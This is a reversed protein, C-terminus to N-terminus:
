QLRLDQARERQWAAVDESTLERFHWLAWNFCAILDVAAEVGVGVRVLRQVGIRSVEEQATFYESVSHHHNLKTALGDFSLAYRPIGTSALVDCFHRTAEEDCDKVRFSLLSGPRTYHAAIVAADTHGPLSPHFVEEVCPHGELFAALETATQCRREFRQRAEGLGALIAVARRWDLTGGRMAQLDMLENLLDVRRSAIYGWMDRDQGALAKTGSAVVVDVGPYDLLPRRIGWPTAVTNDIALRLRKNGGARAREALEGLAQPDAARTLPNTYTETFILTTDSRLAAEITAPQADDTLTIAGGCRDVLRQLYAKGKNYIARTAVVHSGPAFAVDFLLACAQMGGDTLVAGKAAELDCVTAILTRSPETGYRGYIQPMASWPEASLFIAKSKREQWEVLPGSGLMDLQLTEGDPHLYPHGRERIAADIADHLSRTAKTLESRAPRTAPTGAPDLYRDTM